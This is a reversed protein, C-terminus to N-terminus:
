AAPKEAAGAGGRALSDHPIVRMLALYAGGALAAGVFVAYSYVTDWASPPLQTPDGFAGAARLFGPLNPLVGLVLALM